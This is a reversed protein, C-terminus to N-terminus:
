SHCGHKWLLVCVCVCVRFCLVLLKFKFWDVCVFLCACVLVCSFVFMTTFFLYIPQHWLRRCTQASVERTVRQQKCALAATNALQTVVAVSSLSLRWTTNVWGQLSSRTKHTQFHSHSTATLSLRVCSNNVCEHQLKHQGEKSQMYASGIRENYSPIIAFSHFFCHSKELSCLSIERLPVHNWNETFEIIVFVLGDGLYSWIEVLLPKSKQYVFGGEMEFCRQPPFILERIFCLKTQLSLGSAWRFCINDQWTLLVLRIAPIWKMRNEYHSSKERATRQRERWNTKFHLRM